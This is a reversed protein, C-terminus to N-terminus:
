TTQCQNSMLLLKKQFIKQKKETKSNNHQSNTQITIRKTAKSRSLQDHSSIKFEIPSILTLVLKMNQERNILVTVM